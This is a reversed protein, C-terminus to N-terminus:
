YLDIAHVFWLSGMCAEVSHEFLFSYTHLLVRLEGQDEDEGSFDSNCTSSEASPSQRRPYVRQLCAGTPLSASKYVKATVQLRSDDLPAGTPSEVGDPSTQSDASMVGDESNDAALEVSIKPSHFAEADRASLPTPPPRRRGNTLGNQLREASSDTVMSNSLTVTAM